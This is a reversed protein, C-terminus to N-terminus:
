IKTIIRQNCGINARSGDDEAGVFWSGTGAYRNSDWNCGGFGM